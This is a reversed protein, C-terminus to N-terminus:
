KEPREFVIVGPTDTDTWFKHYGLDDPRNEWMIDPYRLIHRKYTKQIKTYYENDLQEHWGRRFIVWKPMHSDDYVWTNDIKLGTYFILPLDGYIIKVEDGERANASLFKVIGEIPGDYDHTIEYFYKPLFFNPPAQNFVGTGLSIGLFIVVAARSRSYWRSLVMGEAIGLLPIFYVMYRFHRQEAFSFAGIGAAAIAGILALAEIEKRSLAPGIRKKKIAWALYVAIFFFVPFIYKNIVRILFEFNQGIKKATLPGAHAASDSILFWPVVAGIVVIAALFMMLIRKRDREFLIFHAAIAAFVPVLMGHVTYGLTIMCAALLGLDGAKGEGRFKSYFILILLVLFVALAYYRSQRMLLLYPVSLVLLLASIVATDKDGTLRRALRYTLYVNIVGLVAFPFRASFTSVGFLLFSFATVYFQVWPHYLWANNSGFGVGYWEALRPNVFNVGDFARPFGFKLVNRALVATEAEDQWLYQNSLNTFILVAALAILFVLPLHDKLDSKTM